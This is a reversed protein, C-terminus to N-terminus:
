PTNRRTDYSITLDMVSIEASMSRRKGCKWVVWAESGCKLMKAFFNRRRRMRERLNIRGKIQLRNECAGNKLRRDKM